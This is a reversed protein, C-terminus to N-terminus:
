HSSSGHGLMPVWLKPHSGADPRPSPGAGPGAVCFIIFSSTCGVSSVLGETDCMDGAGCGWGEGRPRQCFSFVGASLAVLGLTLAMAAVAVKVMMAPSLNPGTPVTHACHAHPVTPHPHWMGMGLSM